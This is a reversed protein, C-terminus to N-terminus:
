PWSSDDTTGWHVTTGQCISALGRKEHETMPWSCGVEGILGPRIETDEVGKFFEKIIGDTIEPESKDRVEQPIVKDVYYSSGMIVNLGTAQAIRQLGKPNRALGIPTVEVITRGGHQRFYSAEEIALDEDLM